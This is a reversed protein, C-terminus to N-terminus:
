RLWVTPSHLYTCGFTRVALVNFAHLEFAESDRCDSSFVSEPLVELHTGLNKAGRKNVYILLDLSYVM